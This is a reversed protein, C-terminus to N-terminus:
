WASARYFGFDAFLDVGALAVSRVPVNRRSWYVNRGQAAANGERMKCAAGFLWHFRCNGGLRRDARHSRVAAHQLLRCHFAAFSLRFLAESNTADVSRSASRRLRPVVVCTGTLIQTYTREGSSM